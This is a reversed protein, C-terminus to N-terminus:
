GDSVAANDQSAALARELSLPDVEFPDLSYRTFPTGIRYLDNVYEPKIRGRVGTWGCGVQQCMVRYVDTMHGCPMIEVLRQPPADPQRYLLPALGAGHVAVIEEAHHFLAFQGAADLTEPYVTVYGRATLFAEIAAQNTLNRTDRRPLFVRRAGTDRGTMAQALVDLMGSELIWTRRLPRLVNWNDLDFGIGPGDVAGDTQQVRLGLLRAIGLIYGPIAAPLLVTVEHPAVGARQCLLFTLPLHNTLFHAWNEPSNIRLDIGITGALPQPEPAGRALLRAMRHRRGAAAQAPFGSVPHHRIQGGPVTKAPLRVHECDPVIRDVLYSQAAFLDAAPINLPFVDIRGEPIDRNM